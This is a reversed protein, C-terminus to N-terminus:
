PTPDGIGGSDGGESGIEKRVARAAPGLRSQLDARFGQNTLAASVLSFQAHDLMFSVQSDSLKMAENISMGYLHAVLSM